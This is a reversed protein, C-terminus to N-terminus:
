EVVRPVVYFGDHADPANKLVDDQRDGDTVVDDRKRSPIPMVARLPEVNETDVEGLQEVWGLINSLEAALGPLRDDDVEIRALRAIRAVTAEDLAM